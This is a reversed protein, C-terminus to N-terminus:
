RVHLKLLRGQFYGNAKEEFSSQSPAYSISGGGYGYVLGLLEWFVHGERHGPLWKAEDVEGFELDFM